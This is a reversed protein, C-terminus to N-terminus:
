VKWSHGCSQCIAHKVLKTDIKKPKFLVFLFRFLTFFLWMMANIFWGITLWYIWYGAGKGKTKTVGVMQVSINESGCKPCVLKTESMNIVENATRAVRM